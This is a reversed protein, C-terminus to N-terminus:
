DTIVVTKMIKDAITQRKADWLPFLYGIGCIIGDVFHCIQRVVAMGFGIPQGTAESVLRTKAWQKGFTQGTTGQKFGSNYLMWALPLVFSILWYLFGGGTVSGTNADYRTAFPSSLLSFVISPLVYDVLGGQARKVWDALNGPAGGGPYPQPTYGGPAPYASPAGYGGQPAGYNGAPAGYNGAPAGYSQSPAAGAPEQGYSQAPAGYGGSAPPTYGGSAPPTYGGSAPPTYGGSAPPTYGGAADNSPPTYGGSAPAGYPTPTSGPPTYSPTSASGSGAETGYSPPDQSEPTNSNWNQNTM